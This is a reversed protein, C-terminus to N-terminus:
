QTILWRLFFSPEIVSVDCQSTSHLDWLFFLVILRELRFAIPTFYFDDLRSLHLLPLIPHSDHLLRSPMEGLKEKILVLRETKITNLRYLGYYAKRSPPM